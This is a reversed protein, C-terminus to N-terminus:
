AVVVNDSINQLSAKVKLLENFVHSGGVARIPLSVKIEEELEVIKAIAEDLAAKQAANM